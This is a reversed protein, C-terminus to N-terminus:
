KKEQPELKKEENQKRKEEKYKMANYLAEYDAYPIDPGSLTAPALTSPTDFIPILFLELMEMYVLNTERDNV